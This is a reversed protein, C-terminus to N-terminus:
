KCTEDPLYKISRTAGAFLALTTGIAPYVCPTLSALMGWAYCLALAEWKNDDLYTNFGDAIADDGLKHCCPLSYM